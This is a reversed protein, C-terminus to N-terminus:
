VYFATFPAWPLNRLVSWAGWVIMFGVMVRPSITLQPLKLKFLRRAAWAVYM